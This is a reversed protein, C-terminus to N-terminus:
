ADAQFGELGDPAVASWIPAEMRLDRLLRRSLRRGENGPGLDILQTAGGTGFAAELPLRWDLARVLVDLYVGVGADEDDQLNRGDYTSYVPRALTWGPVRFDIRTLDADAAPRVADMLSSHFPCTSRIYLWVIRRERFFAGHCEQFEILSARHGTLVMNTPSHWLSVSIRSRGSSRRNYQRVLAVVDDQAPGGVSVMPMPLQRRPDAAAARACEEDTPFMQPFVEQGRSALCFAYKAFQRLLDNRITGDGTRSLMMAAILGQSHGILGASRRLLAEVDIGRHRLREWCAIQTAFILPVSVSATWLVRESPLTSPDDLWSKVDFGFPVCLPDVWDIEEAAADIVCAILPRLRPDAWYECLQPFWTSGQGGFSLCFM